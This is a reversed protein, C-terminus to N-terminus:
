AKQNVLVDRIRMIVKLYEERDQRTLRGFVDIIMQRKQLNIKRVLASGKATAKVKIIRRDDPDRTREVYGDRVMRDILGTMAATTVGIFKALDTMRGGRQRDLFNLIIFQPMTIKGKCLESTQRKIFETMVVPLVEDLKDAFEALSIQSM